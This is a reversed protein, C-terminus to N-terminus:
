KIQCTKLSNGQSGELSLKERELRKKKSPIPTSNLDKLKSPLHEVVQAMRGDRKKWENVHAYMTQTMEGGQGGGGEEEKGGV